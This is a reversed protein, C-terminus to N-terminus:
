CAATGQSSSAHVQATATNGFPANSFPDSDDASLAALGQSLQVSAANISEEEAIPSELIPSVLCM